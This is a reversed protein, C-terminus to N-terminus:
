KEVPPTNSFQRSKAFQRAFESSVQKGLALVMKDLDGSPVVQYARVSAITTLPYNGDSTIASISLSWIQPKGASDPNVISLGTLIVAGETSEKVWSAGNMVLADSVARGVM